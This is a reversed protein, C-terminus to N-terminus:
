VPDGLVAIDSSIPLALRLRSAEESLENLTRIHFPEFTTAKTKM